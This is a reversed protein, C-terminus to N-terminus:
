YKMELKEVFNDLNKPKTDQGYSLRWQQDGNYNDLWHQHLPPPILQYLIISQNWIYLWWSLVNVLYLLDIRIIRFVGDDVYYNDNNDIDYDNNYCTQDGQQVSGRSPNSAQFGTLKFWPPVKQWCNNRPEFKM